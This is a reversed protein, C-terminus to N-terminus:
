LAPERTPPAGRKRRRDWWLWAGNLTIFLALWTCLLWLIKLPLGGYDGFHLPQSLMIAKMYLPMERVAAVRGDGADVLAVRFLREQIGSPGVLIATYHRDTSFETGPYILNSVRWGPPAARQAATMASDVDVPPRRVDLQGAAQGARKLESLATYSWIGTAITGLGLLLGTLSVLLAWGLVTAGVFNHLDLQRLRPGRGRRLLGFAVKKMHPWYVVVGSVLSLLVLLAVLAGLLEGAVGLFWRAHLELLFGTLTRNPNVGQSLSQGTALDTYHLSTRQFKRVANPAMVLLLVGPHRAPDLGLSLVRQGPHDQLLANVSPQLPAKAQAAKGSSPLNGLLADIERHFILLTGSLCLILFPLTAVLSCWRHLWLNVLYWRPSARLTGNPQAM